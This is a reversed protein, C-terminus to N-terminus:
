KTPWDKVENLILNEEKRHNKNMNDWDIKGTTTWYQLNQHPLRELLRDMELEIKRENTVM